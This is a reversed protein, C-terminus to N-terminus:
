LYYILLLSPNMQSASEWLSKVKPVDAKVKPESWIKMYFDVSGFTFASTGFTFDSQSDAECIFGDKYFCIM